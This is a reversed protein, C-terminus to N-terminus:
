FYELFYVKLWAQGMESAEANSLERELGQIRQSETLFQRRTSAQLIPKGFIRRLALPQFFFGSIMSIELQTKKPADGVVRFIIMRDESPSDFCTSVTCLTWFDRGRYLFPIQFYCKKGEWIGNKLPYPHGFDELVAKREAWASLDKLSGEQATTVMMSRHNSTAGWLDTQSIAQHHIIPLALISFVRQYVLM